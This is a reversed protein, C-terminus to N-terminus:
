IFKKMRTLNLPHPSEYFDNYNETLEEGKKIDRLTYHGDTNPTNSHNLFGQLVVEHNPSYFRLVRYKSDWLMRDCILDQIEPVLENKFENEDLLYLPTQTHHHYPNYDTFAQGKPIDRIAIVGVGHIKSVGVRAWITKNLYETDRM